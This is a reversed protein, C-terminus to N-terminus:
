HVGRGEDEGQRKIQGGEKREGQQTVQSPKRDVRVQVDGLEACCIVFLM